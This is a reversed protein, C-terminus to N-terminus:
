SAIALVAARQQYFRAIATDIGAWLSDTGPLSQQSASVTYFTEGNQRSTNINLGAQRIRSIVSRLSHPQIGLSATLAHVSKTGAIIADLVRRQGKSLDPTAPM